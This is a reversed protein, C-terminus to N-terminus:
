DRDRLPIPPPRLRRAASTTVGLRRALDDLTRPPDDGLSHVVHDACVTEPSIGSGRAIAARWEFWPTRPDPARPRRVLEAPPPAAVHARGARRIAELWPSEASPRRRRQECSTVVLRARARTIAVYLLRAEEDLQARSSAGTHPVLGREVGALVVTDWERGKAAHFTTVTVADGHDYMHELDIHGEAWQRFTGDAHSSLYRDALQAIQRRPASSDAAHVEAWAALEDRQLLRAAEDLALALESRRVGTHVHVGHARLQAAIPALQENTRALVAVRGDYTHSTAVRAISEAEHQEDRCAWVAVAPGDPRESRSDDGIEREALVHRGADLIQPSCRYNSRLSVVTIGPYTTEIHELLTPDSGNWGYIAQRPDGVVCLDSRGARWSELVAHQLPNLDQVEDVFFHRFRWQVIRAFEPDQVAELVGELLDDFDVVGRRRKVARYEAWVDVMRGPPISSRRRAARAAADYAEPAVRRARAWDIDAIAAATPVRINLARLVESVIRARDQAIRPPADNRALARDSMLRLAVAHFTGAEIPAGLSFQRLRRRLEAAADRTFTLALVHAAEADGQRVRYAIRRTLVTTKGSGAAAIIALPRAPDVVAAHQAADLGSLTADM